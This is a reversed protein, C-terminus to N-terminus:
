RSKDKQISPRKGPSFLYILCYSCCQGRIALPANEMDGARVLQRFPSQQFIRGM